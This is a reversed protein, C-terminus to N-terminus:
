TAPLLLFFTFALSGFLIDPVEKENPRSNAYPRSKFIIHWNRQFYLFKSSFIGSPPPPPLAYNWKVLFFIYFYRHIFVTESELPVKCTQAM